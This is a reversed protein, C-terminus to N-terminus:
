TQVFSLADFKPLLVVGRGEWAFEALTKPMPEHREHPSSRITAIGVLFGSAEGLSISIRKPKSAPRPQLWWCVITDEAKTSPMCKDECGVTLFRDVQISAPRSPRAKKTPAKKNGPNDKRRAERLNSDSGKKACAHTNAWM